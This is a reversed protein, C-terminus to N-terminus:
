SKDSKIHTWQMAEMEGRIVCSLPTGATLKLDSHISCPSIAPTVYCNKLLHRNIMECLWDRIEEETEEYLEETGDQEMKQRIEKLYEGEPYDWWELVKEHISDLSNSSVSKQLLDKSECLNDRYDVFYLNVYSPLYTQIQANM